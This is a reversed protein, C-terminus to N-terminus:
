SQRAAIEIIRSLARGLTANLPVSVNFPNQECLAIRPDTELFTRYADAQGALAKAQSARDGAPAANFERMAKALAVQNGDTIGNLGYEAIRSLIPDDYGKLTAQLASISPDTSDKASQWIELPNDSAETPEDTELGLYLNLFRIQVDTLPM